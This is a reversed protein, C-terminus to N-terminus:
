VDVEMKKRNHFLATFSSLCVALILIVGQLLSTMYSSVGTAVMLSTLLRMIVAGVIAGAFSYYGTAISCGGIVASACSLLIFSDGATPSGSAVQATRFLGSAAALFGSIMYVLIKTRTVAIGGFYAGKENSGVSVLAIGLRSAKFFIGIVILAALLLLSVKVSGFKYLLAKTFVSPVKGGDVSLVCLAAGSWIAWTTLTAIFPQLRFKVIIFGNFAGAFVGILLIGFSFALIGPVSEPMYVAALCNTFSIVGGVSLDTGGIMFVLTQGIGALALTVWADAQRNLWNFNIVGPQYIGMIILIIALILYPIWINLNSFYRWLRNKQNGM